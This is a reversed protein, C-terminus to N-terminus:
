PRRRSAAGTAWWWRAAGQQLQTPVDKRDWGYVKPHGIGFVFGVDPAYEWIGQLAEDVTLGELDGPGLEAVPRSRDYWVDDEDGPTPTWDMPPMHHQRRMAEAHSATARIHRESRFIVGAEPLEPSERYRSLLNRLRTEDPPAQHAPWLHEVAHSGFTAAWEGVGQHHKKHFDQLVESVAGVGTSRATMLRVVTQDIERSAAGEDVDLKANSETYREGTEDMRARVRKKHKKQKTM